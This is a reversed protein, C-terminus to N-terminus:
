IQDMTFRFTDDLKQIKRVLEKLRERLTEDKTKIYESYMDLFQDQLERLEKGTEVRDLSRELHYIDGSSLRDLINFYEGRMYSLIQVYQEFGHSLKELVESIATAKRFVSQSYSYAFQYYAKARGVYVEENDKMLSDKSGPRSGDPNRFIGISILLFDANTKYITYKLRVDSSHRVKEFLDMDYRSLYKRTREHYDPNMFSTLLSALYVNVDEDYFTQNSANGSELRSYLLCNMVFYFTPEVDRQGGPGITIFNEGDM